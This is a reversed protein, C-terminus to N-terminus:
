LTQKAIQPLDGSVDVRHIPAPRGLRRDQAAQLEHLYMTLTRNLHAEARIVKDMAKTPPIVRRRRLREVEREAGALLSQARALDSEAESTLGALLHPGDDYQDDASADARTLAALYGLLDNVHQATWKRLHFVNVSGPVNPVTLETSDVGCADAAGNIIDIADDESLSARASLTSFRRLRDLTEQAREVGRSLAAIGDEHQPVADRGAAAAHDGIAAAEFRAIRRLRWLTTAVGEASAIEFAGVPQFHDVIAHRYDEWEEASELGRIVPNTAFLGFKTANQSVIAKGNPTRPGTARSAAPLQAAAHGNSAAPAPATHELPTTDQM